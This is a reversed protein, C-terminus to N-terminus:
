LSKSTIRKKVVKPSSPYFINCERIFHVHVFASPGQGKALAIAIVTAMAM